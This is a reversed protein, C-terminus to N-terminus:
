RQVELTVIYDLDFATTHTVGAVVVGSQLNSGTSATNTGFSTIVDGDVTDVVDTALRTGTFEVVADTRAASAVSRTGVEGALVTDTPDISTVVTEGVSFHSITDFTEGAVAKAVNELFSDTITM